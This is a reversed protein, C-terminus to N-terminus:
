CSELHQPLKEHSPIWLKLMFNCQFRYMCTSIPSLSFSCHRPPPRREGLAELSLYHVETKEREELAVHVQRWIFELQQALIVVFLLPLQDAILHTKQKTFVRTTLRLPIASVTLHSLRADSDTTSETTQPDKTGLLTELHLARGGGVQGLDLAEIQILAHSAPDTDCGEEGEQCESQVVTDDNEGRSQKWSFFRIWSAVCTSFSKSIDSRVLWM